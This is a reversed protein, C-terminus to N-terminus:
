RHLIHQDGSKGGTNESALIPPPDCSFLRGSPFTVMVVM